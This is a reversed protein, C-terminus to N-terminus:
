VIEVNGGLIAVDLGHKEVVFYQQVMEGHFPQHPVMAVVAKISEMDIVDVTNDGNYTCSLLMNYSQELLGRHPPSYCSVVALTRKVEKITARFYYHVAAFNV